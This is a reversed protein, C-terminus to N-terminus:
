RCITAKLTYLEGNFKRFTIQPPTNNLNNEVCTSMQDEMFKIAVQEGLLIGQVADTRYHIGAWNRGIAVNSALKNIEGYITM